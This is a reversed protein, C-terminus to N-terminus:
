GHQIVMFRNVPTGNGAGSGSAVQIKPGNVNQVWTLTEQPNFDPVQQKILDTLITGAIKTGITVKHGYVYRGQGSVISAEKIENYRM